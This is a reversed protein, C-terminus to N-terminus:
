NVAMDSPYNYALFNMFDFNSTDNISLVYNSAGPTMFNANVSNPDLSNFLQNAPSLILPMAPSTNPVTVSYSGDPMFIPPLAEQNLSYIYRNISIGNISGNSSCWNFDKYNVPNLKIPPIFPFFNPFQLTQKNSPIITTSNDSSTSKLVLQQNQLLNQYQQLGFYEMYVVIRRDSDGTCYLSALLAEANYFIQSPTYYAGANPLSIYDPNLNQLAGFTTQSFRGPIVQYTAGAHVLPILFQIFIEEQSLLANQYANFCDAAPTKGDTNLFMCSEMLLNTVRLQGFVLSKYYSMYQDIADRYDLSGSQIFGCMMQSWLQLVSKNQGNGMIILNIGSVCANAGGFATYLDNLYTFVEKPTFNSFESVMQVYVSYSSNISNLYNHTLTNDLSAWEMYVQENLITQLLNQIQTNQIYISNITAQISTLQNGIATLMGNQQELSSQLYSFEDPTLTGSPFNSSQLENTLNNIVQGGTTQGNGFLFNLTGGVDYGTADNAEQVATQALGRGLTLIADDFFSM